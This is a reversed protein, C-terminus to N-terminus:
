TSKIGLLIKFAKRKKKSKKFGEKSDLIMVSKGLWIRLYYSEPKIPGKIGKEEFENGNELETETRILWRNGLGVEIFKLRM